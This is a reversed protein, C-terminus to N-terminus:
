LTSITASSLLRRDLNNLRHSHTRSGLLLKDVLRASRFAFISRSRYRSRICCRSHIVGEHQLDDAHQLCLLSCPGISLGLPDLSLVSPLNISLGLILLKQVADSANLGRRNLPRLCCVSLLRSKSLALSSDGLSLSLDGGALLLYFVGLDGCVELLLLCRLLKSLSPRSEVFMQLVALLVALLRFLLPRLLMRLTPALEVRFEGISLAVNFRTLMSKGLLLLLEGLLNLSVLLFSRFHGGSDDDVLAVLLFSLLKWNSIGRVFDVALNSDLALLGDVWSALDQKLYHLLERLDVRTRRCTQDYVIELLAM